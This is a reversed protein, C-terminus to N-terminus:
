HTVSRVFQAILQATQEAPLLSSDICLDYSAADGWKKDTYFNYYEARLRNKRELLDRAEKAGTCDGRQVIREVCAEAPAHIFVSIVRYDARLVYDATRGVIVCPGRGALTMMVESQARYIHDDSLQTDGMFYAGSNLGLNFSWLNAFFRPSREDAEEFVHQSVGSQKAAEILLEKDYYTIGLQQAVLHGIERGGSGFQRGITVVWKDTNNSM